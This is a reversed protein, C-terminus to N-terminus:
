RLTEGLLEAVARTFVPEDVGGHRSGTAQRSLTTGEQSDRGLFGDLRDPAPLGCFGFLAGLTAQPDAVLQEYRVVFLPVGRHRLELARELQSVWQCAMIEATSLLRGKRARHAALMPILLGLRDQVAAEDRVLAPDYGDFARAVSHAWAVPERYLFVPRAEPLQTQLAAALEVAFSRPKVVVPRGRGALSLLRLCSGALRDRERVDCRGAAALMVLQTLVDPESVAALGGFEALARAVLTSGCRGTSYVLVVRGPEFPARAALDHLVDYPVNLVSSAGEHQAQYFFPAGAPGRGAPTRVFLAQRRDHDLCYLSVAPDSLVAEPDAPGADQCHFDDPGAM